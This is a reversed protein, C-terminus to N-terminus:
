RELVCLRIITSFYKRGRRAFDFLNSGTKSVGSRRPQMIYPLECVRLSGDQLVRCIFDIFYEGYDGRLPYKLLVERRVAIFGSTYDYFSSSFLLRLLRNICRSLFLQQRAGRGTRREGGGAIYRSNVALDCGDAVAKLLQPIYDPHQSFDADLWVVVDNKAAAIGEALSATLGHDTLRRIVRVTADTCESAGAIEWTRDPSDDDVVVIELEGIGISRVADAVERILDAIHGSENYTPLIVTISDTEPPYISM